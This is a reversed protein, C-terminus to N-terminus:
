IDPEQVGRHAPGLLQLGSLGPEEGEGPQQGGTQAGPALDLAEPVQHDPWVLLDCELYGRICAVLSM